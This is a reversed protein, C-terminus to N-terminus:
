FGDVSIFHPPLMKEKNAVKSLPVEIIDWRYPADNLRSIAPM